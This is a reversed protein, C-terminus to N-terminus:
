LREGESGKRRRVSPSGPASLAPGRGPDASMRVRHEVEHDILHFAVWSASVEVDDRVRVRHFEGESMPALADLVLARVRELRALHDALSVGRMPSLRGGEIRDDLPFLASMLPDDGRDLVDSYVWDAEVLAVHYLVTGLTDAGDGLDTDIADPPIEAIVALTDRRVEELAALWRGVEPDAADPLPDLVLRQM